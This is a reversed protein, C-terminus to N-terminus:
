MFIPLPLSDLSNPHALFSQYFEEDFSELDFGFKILQIKLFM